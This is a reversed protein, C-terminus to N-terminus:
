EVVVTATHEEVVEGLSEGDIAYVERMISLNYQGSEKPLKFTFEDKFIDEDEKFTKSDYKNDIKILEDNLFVKYRYYDGKSRNKELKTRFKFTVEESPKGKVDRMSDEVEKKLENYEIKELLENKNKFHIYGQIGFKREESMMQFVLDGKELEKSKFNIFNQGDKIKIKYNDSFEKGDFNLSVKKGNIFPIVTFEKGEGLNEGEINIRIDGNKVEESTFKFVGKGDEMKTNEFNYTYGDWNRGVNSEYGVSLIGLMVAMLVGAIKIKM